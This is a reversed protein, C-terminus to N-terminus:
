HEQCSGNKQCAFKAEETEADEKLHAKKEVIAWRGDICYLSNDDNFTGNRCEAATANSQIFSHSFLFFVFISIKKM